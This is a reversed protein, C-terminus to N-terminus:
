KCSYRCLFLYEGCSIFGEPQMNEFEVITYM